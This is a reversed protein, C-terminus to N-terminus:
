LEPSTLNYVCVFDCVQMVDLKADHEEQLRYMQVRAETERSANMEALVATLSEMTLQAALVCM